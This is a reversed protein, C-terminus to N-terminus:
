LPSESGEARATANSVEPWRPLEDPVPLALGSKVANVIARALKLTADRCAVQGGTLLSGHCAETQNIRAREIMADQSLDRRIAPDIQSWVLPAYRPPLVPKRTMFEDAALTACTGDFRLIDYSVPMDAVMERYKSQRLRLVIFEELFELRTAASPGGYSNFAATDKVTVWGHQWPASKDFLKLAVGPYKRQCLLRVFDDPPYCDKGEGTCLEPLRAKPATQESASDLDRTLRAKDAGRSAVPRPASEPVAPAPATRNAGCGLLTVICMPAVGHSARM